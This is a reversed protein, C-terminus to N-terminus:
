WSLVARRVAAACNARLCLHLSYCVTNLVFIPLPAFGLIWDPTQLINHTVHILCLYTSQRQHPLGHEGVSSQICVLSVKMLYEGVFGSLNEPYYMM